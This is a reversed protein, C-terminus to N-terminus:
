FFITAYLREMTLRVYENAMCWKCHTTRGRRNDPCEFKKRKVSCRLATPFFTLKHKYQVERGGRITLWDHWHPVICLGRHPISSLKAEAHEWLGRLQTVCYIAGWKWILFLNAGFAARGICLVSQGHITKLKDCEWQNIPRVRLNDSGVWLFVFDQKALCLLCHQSGMFWHSHMGYLNLRWPEVPKRRRKPRLSLNYDHSTNYIGVKQIRHLVHM